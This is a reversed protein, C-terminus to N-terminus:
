LPLMWQLVKQIYAEWFDWDHNGPGEVYVAKSGREDLQAKMATNMDYVFDETGCAFYLEPLNGAKECRDYLTILHM